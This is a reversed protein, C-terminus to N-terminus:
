RRDATAPRADWEAVAHRMLEIDQEYFTIEPHMQGPLVVVIPNYNMQFEIGLEAAHKQAKDRFLRFFTKEGLTEAERALENMGKVIAIAAWQDLILDDSMPNRSDATPPRDDATRRRDDTM